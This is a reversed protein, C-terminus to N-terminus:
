LRPLLELLLADTPADNAVSAATPIHGDRFCEGRWQKLLLIKYIFRALEPEVLRKVPLYLKESLEANM